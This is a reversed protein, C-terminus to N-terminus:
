DYGWRCLHLSCTLALCSTRLFSLALFRGPTPAPQQSTGKVKRYERVCQHLAATWWDLSSAAGPAPAPATVAAYSLEERGTMVRWLPVFEAYRQLMLQTAERTNCALLYRVWANQLSLSVCLRFVGVPGPETPRSAPLLMRQAIFSYRQDLFSVVHARLSATHWVPHRARLRRLLMHHRVLAQRESHSLACCGFASM